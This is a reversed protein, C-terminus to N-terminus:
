CVTNTPTAEEDDIAVLEEEEGAVEAGALAARRAAESAGLAPLAGFGGASAHAGRTQSALPAAPARAAGRQIM